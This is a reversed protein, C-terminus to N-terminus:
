DLVLFAAGESEQFEAIRDASARLVELIQETSCNGIRIWIVKPPPGYLFSM